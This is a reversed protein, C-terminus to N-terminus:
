RSRYLRDLVAPCGVQAGGEPIPMLGAVMAPGVSFLTYSSDAMGSDKADWGIVRRYFAEAAECDGTMVDYWIFEGHTTTV